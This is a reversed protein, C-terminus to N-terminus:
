TMLSYIEKYFDKNNHELGIAWCFIDYEDASNLNYKKPLCINIINILASATLRLHRFLDKQIIIAQILTSDVNNIVANGKFSYKDTGCRYYQKYWNLIVKINKNFQQTLKKYIEITKESSTNKLKNCIQYEYISSYIEEDLKSNISKIKRFM